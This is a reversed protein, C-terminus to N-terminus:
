GHMRAGLRMALGLGIATLAVSVFSLAAVVDMAGTALLSVILSGIVETGASLLYVGTAYERLFVIMILTWAGVLGPRLLPALIQTWTQGITAGATRASEELEPAVQLLTSQILRLGYALGVVTYAIMLSALTPRLPTLFPVFLFLWFFALGIVLGPLARPLLVLYDLLTAGPGQWRHAALAVLLYIGVALAGGIAAILVTNIMGRLLSPVELLQRFNALTLHDALQVGQGWADVFARLTIGGVPLIVAVLFWLGIAALALLKGARSLRLPTARAGKGGLTAFRRARGLLRRQIWVLPLTLGVLIIAVVAMLHYTPLGFLTTLKYIYTTLVLLGGPDGLVLPLGFSEFGLLVNLAVAFVLAPLALPLTIEWAVRWLGAGTTRAAEELDAPLSRMASSAYLYVHPVHSLGGIVILGGLGYINWPEPGLWPELLLSVFGSPGISVTYGFALVISSLFMPVLVLPEILRAGPIDTRTLLFALGAGLPVALATLGVSFLATTSLADWFDPDTLVYSWADLGLKASADFFPGDLLSQYGILGVPALVAAALIALVLYRFAAAEGGGAIRTPRFPPALSAMRLGAHSPAM